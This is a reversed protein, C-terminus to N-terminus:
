LYIIFRICVYICVHLVSPNTDGTDAIVGTTM